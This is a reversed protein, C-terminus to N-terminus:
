LADRLRLYTRLQKDYQINDEIVPLQRVKDFESYWRDSNFVYKDDSLRCHKRGHYHLVKVGKIIKTLRCSYNYRDDIIKYDYGPLLIQCAIEDPIFTTRNLKTTDYWTDFIKAGKRWGYFGTNIARQETYARDVVEDSLIGRWNEIRKRYHRGKTLWNAFQTVIFEHDDLYSFADVVNSLFITDSDFFLTRDYPTVQHLRCKNLLVWNKNTDREFNAPIVRVGFSQAVRSCQDYGDSDSLIAIPSSCHKVLTSISVALRVICKRGANYFVIGDM